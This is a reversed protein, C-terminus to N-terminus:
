TGLDIEGVMFTVAKGALIVRNEELQCSLRGGRASVQRAEFTNKGLRQAWYPTLECHAAGTVPDEPVGIKPAFFRSVFDVDKGPATVIVGRLDLEQLKAFDPAISRVIEESEFVAIYDNATWVEQPTRGLADVLADFIPRLIPPRAPFNMTLLGEKSEVVLEGSKTQFTIQKKPFGLIEFLVHAAALTAHGCLDVEAIPTFWRLYFGRETPVFFATESLNNENAIAQLLSDDLWNDLPCVAAPNGEFVRTAFADVQYQKLRM